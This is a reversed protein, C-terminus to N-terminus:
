DEFNEDVFVYEVSVARVAVNNSNATYKLVVPVGKALLIGGSAEFEKKTFAPNLTAAATAGVAPTTADDVTITAFADADLPVGVELTVDAGGADGIKQVTHYVGTVFIDHLKNVLAVESGQQTASVDVIVTAMRIKADINLASNTIGPM